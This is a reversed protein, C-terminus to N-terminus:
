FPIEDNLRKRAEYATTLSNINTNIWGWGEDTISYVEYPDGDEDTWRDSTILGLSRLQRLGVNCALNNWGLKEMAKRLQYNTIRDELGRLELGMVAM